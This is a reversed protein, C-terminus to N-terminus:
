FLELYAPFALFPSLILKPHKVMLNVKQRYKMRQVLKKDFESTNTTGARSMAGHKLDLSQMVRSGSATKVGDKSLMGSIGTLRNM